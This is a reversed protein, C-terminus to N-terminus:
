YGTGPNPNGNGNGPNPNASAAQVSEIRGFLGHAEEDPGATFYLTSAKFGGADPGFKLAWLGDIQIEDGSEDVLAGDLEATTAGMKYAHILGDGFNGVLLRNPAATFSAPTMTVGWPSNLEGQSILRGVMTGDVTFLDVFGNGAGKEDDEADADQLAYTVVLSGNLAEVNFPAFGEPMDPDAFGGATVPEYTADFVDVKANHFDAAYLRPGSAGTVITVGKYIAESESNDVRQTAVGGMTQQWGSITGDETVFVFLDGMFSSADGNYVQGTPASAEEDPMSPITVASIKANGNADYVASVGSETASVWAVGAPNFALGWANVLMEDRVQAGAQDSVIDTRKVTLATNQPRNNGGGVRGNNDDNTCATGFVALLAVPVVMKSTMLKM